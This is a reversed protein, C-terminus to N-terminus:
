YDLIGSDRIAEYLEQQQPPFLATASILDKLYKKRSSIDLVNRGQLANDIRLCLESVVTAGKKMHEIEDESQAKILKDVYKEIHPIVNSLAQKAKLAFLKNEEMTELRELLAVSLALSEIVVDSLEESTLKNM